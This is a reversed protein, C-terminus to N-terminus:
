EHIEVEQAPLSIQFVTGHPSNDYVKIEGHHAQIISQCLSLDGFGLSRRSDAVQRNATYFMDFIHEKDKDNIGNGEDAIDIYINKDKLYSQITITTHDPTYKIANDLINM